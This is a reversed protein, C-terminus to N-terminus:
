KSDKGGLKAFPNNERSGVMSLDNANRLTSLL